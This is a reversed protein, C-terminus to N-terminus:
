RQASAQRSGRDINGGGWDAYGTSRDIKGGGALGLRVLRAPALNSPALLPKGLHLVFICGEFGIAQISVVAGAAIRHFDPALNIM